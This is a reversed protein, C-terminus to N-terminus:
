ASFIAPARKEEGEAVPNRPKWYALMFNQASCLFQCTKREAERGQRRQGYGWRARVAQDDVHVLM